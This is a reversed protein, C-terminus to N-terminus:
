PKRSFRELREQLTGTHLEFLQNDDDYFYISHGEGEVRPRLERIELGLAEVRARAECLLIPDVKFEIHNYTCESLPAGEMIAIWVYRVLFFKERAILFVNDESSYVKRGCLITEIITKMRGLDRVVLPIRSLGETM